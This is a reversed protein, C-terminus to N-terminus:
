SFGALAYGAFLRLGAPSPVVHVFQLESISASQTTWMQMTPGAQTRPVESALVSCVAGLWFPTWFSHPACTSCLSIWSNRTFLTHGCTTAQAGSNRLVDLPLRSACGAQRCWFGALAYGALLRLGAPSPVVHVFQSESTRSM